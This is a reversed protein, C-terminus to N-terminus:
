GRIVVRGKVRRKAGAVRDPQELRIQLDLRAAEEEGGGCVRGGHLLGEERRRRRVNRRRPAPRADGVWVEDATELHIVVFARLGVPTIEHRAHVEGFPHVLRPALIGRGRGAREHVSHVRARAARPVPAQGRRASTLSWVDVNLTCVARAHGLARLRAKGLRDARDVAADGVRCPLVAAMVQGGTADERLLEHLTSRRALADVMALPQAGDEGRQPGGHPGGGNPANAVVSRAIGQGKPQWSTSDPPLLGPASRLSQGSFM